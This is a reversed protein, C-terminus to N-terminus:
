NSKYYTLCYSDPEISCHNSPGAIKELSQLSSKWRPCDSMHCLNTQKTYPHSYTNLYSNLSVKQHIAARLGMAFARKLKPYSTVSKNGHNFNALNSCLM